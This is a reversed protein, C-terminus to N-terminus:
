PRMSGALRAAEDLSTGPREVHAVTWPADMLEALRQRHAGHDAM